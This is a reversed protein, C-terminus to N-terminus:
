QRLLQVTNKKNSAASHEPEQETAEHSARLWRQPHSCTEWPSKFQISICAIHVFPLEMQESFSCGCKLYGQPELSMERSDDKGKVLYTDDADSATYKDVCKHEKLMQEAAYSTFLNYLDQLKSNTGQLVTTTMSEKITSHRLEFQHDKSHEWLFKIAAPLTKSTDLNEKLRKNESECRNNTDNRLYPIHQRAYTAWTEICNLWCSEFYIFFLVPAGARLEEVLEDFTLRDEAKLLFFTLSQRRTKKQCNRISPIKWM